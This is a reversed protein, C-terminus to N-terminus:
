AICGVVVVPNFRTIVRLNAKQNVKFRLVNEGVRQLKARDGSAFVDDHKHIPCFKLGIEGNLNWVPKRRSATIRLLCSPLYSQSREKPSSEYRKYLPPVM